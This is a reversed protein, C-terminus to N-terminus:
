GALSTAARRTNEEIDLAVNIVEAWGWLFVANMLAGLIILFALGSGPMVGGFNAPLSAADAAWLGGGVVSVAALVKLIVTLIRLVPYRRRPVALLPGSPRSTVQVGADASTAEVTAGCTGCFKAGPDIVAACNVCFSAM